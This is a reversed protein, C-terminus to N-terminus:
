ILWSPSVVQTCAKNSSHLFPLFSQRMSQTSRSSAETLLIAKKMRPRRCHDAYLALSSHHVVSPQIPRNILGPQAEPPIIFAPGQPWVSFKGLCLSMRTQPPLFLVWEAMEVLLARHLRNLPGTFLCARPTSVVFCRVDLGLLGERYTGDWSLGKNCRMGLYKCTQGARSALRESICYFGLLSPSSHLRKVRTTPSKGSAM